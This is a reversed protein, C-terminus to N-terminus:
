TLSGGTPSNTVQDPTTLPPNRGEGQRTPHRLHRAPLYGLHM